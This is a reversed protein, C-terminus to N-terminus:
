TNDNIKASFEQNYLAKQWNNAAQIQELTLGIVNKLNAGSLDTGSLNAGTLDAYELNSNNLEAGQLNARQFNAKRFCSSTLDVEKLNVEELNAKSLDLLKIVNCDALFRIVPGRTKGDLEQLVVITRARVVAKLLQDTEEDLTDKRLLVETMKDLYDKLKEYNLREEQIAKEQLRAEKAIEAEKKKRKNEQNKLFQRLFVSLLGIVTANFSVRIWEWVSVGLFFINKLGSIEKNQGSRIMDQAM